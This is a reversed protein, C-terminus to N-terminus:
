HSINAWPSTSTAATGVPGCDNGSGGAITYNNAGNGAVSNKIIVNNICGGNNFQIGDGATGTGTVHNGEIRNNSGKLMIAASGANNGSNNGVLTNGIIQSGDGDVLIGVNQNNEVYCHTVTCGNGIAIGHHGNASVTLDELVVNQPTATPYNFSVGDSGWGTIKGNRITINSHSGYIYIGSYSGPVGQLTFGNLDITVNDSAVYIGYPSGPVGYASGTLNTTVYYSGPSSIYYGDYTIPTRPEIQDLSKMTPTPAGPPTLSGQAFTLTATAFLGSVILPVIISSYIKM